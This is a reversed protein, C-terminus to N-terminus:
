MSHSVDFRGAAKAAELLDLDIRQGNNPLDIRRYVLRCAASIRRYGENNRFRIPVLEVVCRGRQMFMINTLNSGHLGIIIESEHALAIQNAFTLNGFDIVEFGNLRFWSEVEVNNRPSRRSGRNRTAYIRRRGKGDLDCSPFVTLSRVLFDRYCRFADFISDQSSVAHAEIRGRHSPYCYFQDATVLSLRSPVIVFQMGQSQFLTILEAVAGVPIGHWLIPVNDMNGRERWLLFVQFFYEIIDHFYMGHPYGPIGFIKKVHIQHIILAPFYKNIRRLSLRPYAAQYYIINGSILYQRETIIDVYVACLLKHRSSPLDAVIPNVPLKYLRPRLVTTTGFKTRKHAFACQDIIYDKLILRCMARPSFRLIKLVVNKSSRNLM